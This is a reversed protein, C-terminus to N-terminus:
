YYAFSVCSFQALDITHHNLVSISNITTIAITDIYRM